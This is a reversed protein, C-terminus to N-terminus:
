EGLSPTFTEMLAEGGSISWTQRQEVILGARPSGDDPQMTWVIHGEYRPVKPKWPLKLYGEAIYDGEIVDRSTRRLEGVLEVRSREPDFLASLARLYRSLGKVNTTPDIFRCDDAFIEETLKGTVFYQNVAIDNTLTDLLADSTLDRRKTGGVRTNSPNEYLALTPPAALATSSSSSSAIATSVITALLVSRRSRDRQTTNADDIVADADHHLERNKIMLARTRGVRRSVRSSSSPMSVPMTPVAHMVRTPAFVM